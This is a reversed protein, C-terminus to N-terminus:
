RRISLRPTRATSSNSGAPAGAVGVRPPRLLDVGAADEVPRQRREVFAPLKRDGRGPERLDAETRRPPRVSAAGRLGPIVEALKPKPTGRAECLGWHPGVSGEAAAKWAEDWLEFPFFVEGRARLMPLVERYYRAANEPSPVAAGRPEGATPWGFEGLVVRVRESKVIARVADLKAVTHAAAGAVDVGDWYPHVHVVVLDLAGNALDPQEIWVQWPEATGVPTALGARRLEAGLRAARRGLLRADVDGRLLAENGVLVAEVSARHRVAAHLALECELDDAARDGSIWAGLWCRLELEACLEPVLINTGGMGYTRVREALRAATALDARLASPLPARIGPGEGDRFPGFCIGPLSRGQAPLVAVLILVSLFHWAGKM